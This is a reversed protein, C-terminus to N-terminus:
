VKQSAGALVIVSDGHRFGFFGVGFDFDFKVDGVNGFDQEFYFIQAGSRL